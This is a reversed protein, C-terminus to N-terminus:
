QGDKAWDVIPIEITEYTTNQERKSQSKQHFRQIEQEAQAATQINKKRWNLLIRDIYQFSLAQHIVAERLAVKVLEPDVKDENLWTSLRNLEMQSLVRGFEEEFDKVLIQSKDMKEVPHRQKKEFYKQNVKNFFSRLSYHDRKKGDRGAILEIDIYKKVYLSNLVSSLRSQEWGLQNQVSELEDLEEGQNLKSLLYVIILFEDSSLDLESFNELLINPVVTVGKKMWDYM